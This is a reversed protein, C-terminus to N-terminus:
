HLAPDPPDRPPPPSDPDRWAVIARGTWRYYDSFEDVPIERAGSAPDGITLKGDAMRLLAISHHRGRKEVFLVAPRGIERLRDFTTRVIDVKLARERGFFRIARALRPLETGRFSTRAAFAMEGEAVAVGWARLLIAGACPGCTFSRTQLMVGAQWRGTLRSLRPGELALWAADCLVYYTLVVSFVGVLVRQRPRKQPLVLGAALLLFGAPAILATLILYPTEIYFGDPYLSTLLRYGVGAAGVSVAANRAWQHRRCVLCGLALFAGSLAVVLGLEAWLTLELSM